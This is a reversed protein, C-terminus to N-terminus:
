NRVWKKKWGKSIVYHWMHVIMPVMETVENDKGMWVRETRDGTGDDSQKEKRESGSHEIVLVRIRPNGAEHVAEPPVKFGKKSTYLIGTFVLFWM